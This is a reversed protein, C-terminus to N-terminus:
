RELLLSLAPRQLTPTCKKLLVSKGAVPNYVVMKSLTWGPAGRGMAMNMGPGSGGAIIVMPWPQQQPLQVPAAPVFMAQRIGGSYLLM